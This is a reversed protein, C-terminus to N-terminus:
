EKGGSPNPFTDIAMYRRYAGIWDTAIDHQAQTIALEGACVLAHLRRELRDKSRTGAGRAHERQPWLNRLDNSGGLELPVLHDVVTRGAGRGDHRGSMEMGYRRYVEARTWEDVHRVSRTYGPTCIASVDTTMVEGPTLSPDPRLPLPASSDAGAAALLVAAVVSCARGAYGPRVEWLV